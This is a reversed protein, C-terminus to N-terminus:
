RNRSWITSRRWRRRRASATAPHSPPRRRRRSPGSLSRCDDCPPVRPRPCSITAGTSRPARADPTTSHGHAPRAMAAFLPQRAPIGHRRHRVCQRPRRRARDRARHRRPPPLHGRRAAGRGRQASISGSSQAIREVFLQAAPYALVEAVDLDDRQPPCDLPFLRFIREGESRFSERSTALVHLQPAERVLREVLPALTDLVHECSDFILLTPGTQLYTLLGPM